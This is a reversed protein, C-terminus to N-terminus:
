FGHLIDVGRIFDPPLARIIAISEDYALDLQYIETEHLVKGANTQVISVLPRHFMTPNGRIVRGLRHDSLEVISGVPFLSAYALFAKAFHHSLLGRQTMRILMEMSEFPTYAARHRRPSALAEFVDAIQIIKAYRHILRSSRRQPYGSGNEREHSQYLMYRVADPLHRIKELVLIGMVPHKQIESFERATLRTTKERIERPVLPMGLDHLLAGIGITLVQERNYGASAAISISIACTNLMHGFLYDEGPSKLRTLSLVIDPDEIFLQLIQEVSKRVPAIDVKNGRLLTDMFDRLTDRMDHYLNQVEAKYAATRAFPSTQHVSGQLSVGVPRDLQRGRRISLDLQRAAPAQLLRELQELRLREYEVALPPLPEGEDATQEAPRRTHDPM